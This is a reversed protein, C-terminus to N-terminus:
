RAHANEERQVERYQPMDLRFACADLFRCLLPVGAAGALTSELVLLAGHWGFVARPPEHPLSVLAMLVAGAAFGLMGGPVSQAVPEDCDGHRRWFVGLGLAAVVVLPTAPVGRALILDLAYGAPAAVLFAPGWGLVVAFYYAVAAVAPVALGYTGFVLEVLVACFACWCLWVWIM